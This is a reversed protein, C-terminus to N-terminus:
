RVASREHALEKDETSAGYQGNLVLNGIEILPSKHRSRIPSSHFHTAYILNRDGDSLHASFEDWLVDIEKDGWEDFSKANGMFAEITKSRYTAFLNLDLRDVVGALFPYATEREKVNLRVIDLLMDDPLSQGKSIPLRPLDLARIIFELRKLRLMEDYIDRAIVMDM